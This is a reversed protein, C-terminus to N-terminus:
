APPVVPHAALARYALALSLGAAVAALPLGAPAWGVAGALVAAAAWGAVLSRRWSGGAAVRGYAVAFASLAIVGLLTGSAARAAFDTGREHADILLVPGAIAPFASVLGGVRAGWRRAALTAVAVLAPAILVHLVVQM